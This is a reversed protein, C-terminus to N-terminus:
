AAEQGFNVDQIQGDIVLKAPGVDENKSRFRVMHIPHNVEIETTLNPMVCALVCPYILAFGLCGLIGGTVGSNMYEFASDGDDGPNFSAFAVVVVAIGFIVMLISYLIWWDKWRGLVAEDHVYLLRFPFLCLVSVLGATVFCLVTFESHDEDHLTPDVSAIGAILPPAVGLIGLFVEFWLLRLNM